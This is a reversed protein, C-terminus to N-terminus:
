KNKYKNLVLKNFLLGPIFMIRILFNNNSVFEEKGYKEKARIRYGNYLIANKVRIKFKFKKNLFMKSNEMAGIPNNYVLKFFNKSIGDELYDTIYIPKNIFVTDYDLAMKNWIIAESLFREDKYIPFHYEKLIKTIFVEAMDGYINKNYRYDIYNSIIEDDKMLRGIKKNNPFVRLFSLCCIKQNKIYKKSYKNILSIANPMLKDDSDLIIIYEGKAKEIGLNLATHKGGNEKKYYRIDIKRENIFEKVLEKTNDTSGDDIIVWEFNKCKQDILSEYANKLIYARNYSPTLVTIM